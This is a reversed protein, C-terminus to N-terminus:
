NFSQPSIPLLSPQSPLFFSFLLFFFSVWVILEKHQSYISSTGSIVQESYDMELVCEEQSESGPEVLPLFLNLTKQIYKFYLM